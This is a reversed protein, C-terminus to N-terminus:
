KDVRIGQFIFWKNKIKIVDFSVEMSKGKLDQVSFIGKYIRKDDRNGQDIRSDVLEVTSWNIENKVGDEILKSFNIKTNTKLEEADVAEYFYKNKKSTHTKFYELETDNPIYNELMNFDNMKVSNFIIQSLDTKDIAGRNDTDFVNKISINEGGMAVFVLSTIFFLFFVM